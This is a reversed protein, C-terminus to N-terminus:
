TEEYGIVVSYTGTGAGTDKFGAKAIQGVDLHLDCPLLTFGTTFLDTDFDVIQDGDRYLRLALDATKPGALFKIVRNKGTQGGLIDGLVERGATGIVIAQTKWRLM